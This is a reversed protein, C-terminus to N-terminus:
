LGSKLEGRRPTKALGHSTPCDVPENSGSFGFRWQRNELYFAPYYTSVSQFTSLILLWPRWLVLNLSTPVVLSRSLDRELGSFTTDRNKMARPQPIITESGM